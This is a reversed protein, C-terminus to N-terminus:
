PQPSVRGPRGTRRRVEVGSREAARARRRPALTGDSGEYTTQFQDGGTMLITTEDSTLPGAAAIVRDIVDLDVDTGDGDFIPGFAAAIRDADSV